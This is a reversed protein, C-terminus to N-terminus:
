RTAYKQEKDESKSVYIIAKTKPKLQKYLWNALIIIILIGAIALIVIGIPTLNAQRIYDMKEKLFELENALMKTSNGAEQNFNCEREEKPYGEDTGCDNNDWCSRYQYDDEGEICTEPDWSDCEWDPICTQEAFSIFSTLALFFVIWIVLNVKKKM